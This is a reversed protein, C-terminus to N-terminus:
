IQLLYLRYISCACGHDQLSIQSKFHESTLGVFVTVAGGVGSLVSIVKFSCEVVKSRMDMIELM